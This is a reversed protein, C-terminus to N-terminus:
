DIRVRTNTANKKPIRFRFEYDSLFSLYHAAHAVSRIGVTTPTSTSTTTSATASGGAIAIALSSRRGTAELGITQPVNQIRRNLGLKFRDFHWVQVQFRGEESASRGGRVIQQRLEKHRSHVACGTTQVVRNRVVRRRHGHFRNRGAGVKAQKTRSREPVKWRMMVVVVVMM